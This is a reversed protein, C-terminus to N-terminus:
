RVDFDGSLARKVGADLDANEVTALFGIEGFNVAFTPVGRGAFLRLSSLITGDGGLVVSLDTDGDAAGGLVTGEREELGHKEVEESPIRVEVGAEVALDIVRRLAATTADPRTRTFVTITRPPQTM